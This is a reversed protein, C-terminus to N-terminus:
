ISLRVKLYLEDDATKPMSPLTNVDLFGDFTDTDRLFSDRRHFDAM